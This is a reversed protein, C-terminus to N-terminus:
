DQAWRHKPLLPAKCKPCKKPFLLVGTTGPTSSSPVTGCRPCRYILGVYVLASVIFFWGCAFAWLNGDLKIFLWGAAFSGFFPLVACWLGLGHRRTFRRSTEEDSLTSERGLYDRWGM